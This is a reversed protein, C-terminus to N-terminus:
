LIRRRAEAWFKLIAEKATKDAEELTEKLHEAPLHDRKVPNGDIVVHRVDGANAGYVYQTLPYSLPAFRDMDVVSLNGFFGIDIRGFKKNDILEGGKATASFFVDKAKYAGVDGRQQKVSAAVARMESIM